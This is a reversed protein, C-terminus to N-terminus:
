MGPNFVDFDIIHVNFCEIFEPKGIQKLIFEASVEYITLPTNNRYSWYQMLGLKKGSIPNTYAVEYLCRVIGNDYCTIDPVFAPYGDISFMRERKGKIWRALVKVAEHHYGTEKVKFHHKKMQLKM